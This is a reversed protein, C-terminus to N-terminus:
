LCMQPTNGQSIISTPPGLGSNDNDDRHLRDQTIHIYTRLVHPDLRHKKIGKIKTTGTELNGAQTGIRIERYSPPQPFHSLWIFGKGTLNSRTM